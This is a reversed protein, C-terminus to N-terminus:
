FVSNRAKPLEIESDTFNILLPRTASAVAKLM